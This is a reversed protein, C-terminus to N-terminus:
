VRNQSAMWLITEEFERLGTIGGLAQVSLAGVANAFRAAEELSFGRQLAALFGGAFCDGAGTTDVVPVSFGPVRTEGSDNFLACGNAGLKLVVTGAGADRLARAAQRHGEEGTLWRAEDENVFCLDTHALCPGLTSMWEGRSDWGTDLSTALGAEKMRRLLDAAHARLKPLGFVNALHFRTCGELLASTIEVPESLAEGSVGPSHLLSRAGDTRVLAITAPTPLPSRRVWRLDVNVSGLTRLITDALADSGTESVLRAPIGLKAIAYSTGAGNGGIQQGISEVWQTAGWTPQEFPRVLIDLVMNGCCLIGPFRNM